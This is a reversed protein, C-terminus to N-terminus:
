DIASRDHIMYHSTSREWLQSPYTMSKSVISRVKYQLFAYVPSCLINFGPITKSLQGFCPILFEIAASLAISYYYLTLPYYPDLIYNLLNWGSWTGSHSM